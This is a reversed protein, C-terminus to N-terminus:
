TADRKVVALHVIRRTKFGLQEYLRAAGINEAAAHLFPVESRGIITRMLVSVLSSAYGRGRHDSHTCVASIETYGPLRLREGAMAVLQGDRRIGLYRGM